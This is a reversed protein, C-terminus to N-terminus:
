GGLIARVGDRREGSGGVLLDVARKGDNDRAAVNAGQEVLMQVVAVQERSVLKANALIVLHLATRGRPDRKDLQPFPSHNLLLRMGEVRPHPFGPAANHPSAM